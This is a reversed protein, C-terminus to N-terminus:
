LFRCGASTPDLHTIRISFDDAALAPVSPISLNIPAYTAGLTFTKKLSSPMKIKAGGASLDIIEFEGISTSLYAKISSDIPVRLASRRQQQFFQEPIRYHYTGDQMRRVTTSKFVLLKSFLNVKFFVRLGSESELKEDFAASKKSWRVTFFKRSPDWDIIRASALEGTGELSIEVQPKLKNIETVIRKKADPDKILSFTPEEDVVRKDAM